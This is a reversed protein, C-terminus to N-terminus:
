DHNKKTVFVGKPKTLATEIDMGKELRLRLLSISLGYERAWASVSKTEGNYAILRMGNTSVRNGHKAPTTLAKEVPWGNRIRWALNSADLGLERAWANINQVKGCFEINVNSSLNAQQEKITAWRCNEPAYGSAGDIRDITTGSPREGMDALFNKFSERWRDCVTIGRGGYASFRPSTRRYCRALMNQYTTYTPSQSTKTTHGHKKSM